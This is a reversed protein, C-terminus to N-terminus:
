KGQDEIFDNIARSFREMAYSLGGIAQEIADAFVNGTSQIPVQVGGFTASGPCEGAGGTVESLQEDTLRELPASADKAGVVDNDQNANM